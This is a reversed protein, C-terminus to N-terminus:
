VDIFIQVWLLTHSQGESLEKQLKENADKLDRALNVAKRQEIMGDKFAELGTYTDASKLGSYQALRSKALSETESRMTVMQSEYEENISQLREIRGDQLTFLGEVNRSLLLSRGPDAINKGSILCSSM